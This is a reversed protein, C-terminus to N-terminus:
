KGVGKEEYYRGWLEIEDDTLFGDPFVDPRIEFLYGGRLDCLM